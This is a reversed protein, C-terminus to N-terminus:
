AAHAGARHLAALFAEPDTPALLLREGDSSEIRVAPVRGPLVAFWPQGDRDRQWGQADGTQWWRPAHMSAPLEAEPWDRLDIRRLRADALTMNLRQFGAEVQLVGNGLRVTPPRAVVAALLGSVLVGIGVFAAALGLHQGGTIWAIVVGILLADFALFLAGSWALRRRRPSPAIAFAQM